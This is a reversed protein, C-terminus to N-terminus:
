IDTCFFDPFKNFAGRVKANHPFCCWPRLENRKFNRFSLGAAILSNAELHLNWPTQCNIQHRIWISSSYFGTWMKHHDSAITVNHKWEDELTANSVVRFGVDFAHLFYNQGPDLPYNSSSGVYLLFIWQLCHFFNRLGCWRKCRAAKSGLNYDRQNKQTPNPQALSWGFIFADIGIELFPQPLNQLRRSSTISALPSKRSYIQNAWDVLASSYM